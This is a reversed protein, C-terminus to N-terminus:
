SPEVPMARGKGSKSRPLVSMQIGTKMPRSDRRVGHVQTRFLMARIEKAKEDIAGRCGARRHHLAPASLGTKAPIRPVLRPRHQGFEELNVVPKPAM